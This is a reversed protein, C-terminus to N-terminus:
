SVYFIIRSFVPEDTEALSVRGSGTIVLMAVLSIIIRNM